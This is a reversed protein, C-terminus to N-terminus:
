LSTRVDDKGFLLAVDSELSRLISGDSNKDYDGYVDFSDVGYSAAIDALKNYVDVPSSKPRANYLEIM